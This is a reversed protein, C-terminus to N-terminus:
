AKPAEKTTTEVGSGTTATGIVRAIGGRVRERLAGANKRFNDQLTKVREPAEKVLTDLAQGIPGIPGVVGSPPASTTTAAADEAPAASAPAVALLCALIAAVVPLASTKM